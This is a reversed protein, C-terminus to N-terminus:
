RAQGPPHYGVPMVPAHVDIEGVGAFSLVLDVSGGERLPRAPSEIMIHYGGPSFTFTGHAPM